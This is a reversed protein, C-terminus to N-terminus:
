EPPGGRSSVGRRARGVPRPRSRRPPQAALSILYSAHAATRDIGSAAIAARFSEIRTEPIRPEVAWRSPSHTLIQVTEMGLAAAAEVAKFFGGSVSMHAGLMPM